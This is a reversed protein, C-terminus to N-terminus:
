CGKIPLVFMSCPRIREDEETISWERFHGIRGARYVSADLAANARYRAFLQSFRLNEAYKTPKV